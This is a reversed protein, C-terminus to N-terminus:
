QLAVSLGLFVTTQPFEVSGPKGGGGVMFIKHVKYQLRFREPEIEIASQNAEKDRMM